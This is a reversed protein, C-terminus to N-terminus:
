PLDEATASSRVAVPVAEGNGLAQYAKAIAGAITAPVVAELLKGRAATALEALRAADTAPTKAFAALTSELGAGEAVLAYAATTVCFGPPVPLGARAMEGVNAAKGGAIPLLSRDIAAFPLILNVDGSQIARSQEEQRQISM